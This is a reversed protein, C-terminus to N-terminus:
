ALTAAVSHLPVQSPQDDAPAVESRARRQVRPPHPHNDSMKVSLKALPSTSHRDPGAAAEAASADGSSSSLAARKTQPMVRVAYSPPSQQRRMPPPPPSGDDTTSPDSSAAAASSPTDKGGGDDRGLEYSSRKRELPPPSQPSPSPSPDSGVVSLADEDRAMRQQTVMM